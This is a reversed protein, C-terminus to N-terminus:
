PCTGIVAGIPIIMKRAQREDTAGAIETKREFRDALQERQRVVLGLGAIRNIPNRADVKGFDVALNGIQGRKTPLKIPDDSGATM